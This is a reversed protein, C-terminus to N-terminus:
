RKQKRQSTLIREIGKQSLSYKDALAELTAGAQYERYIARDRQMLWKRAGNKSGWPKRKCSPIYLYEGDIYKQIEKLLDAPLIKTASQYGM